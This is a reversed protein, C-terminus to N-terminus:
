SLLGKRKLALFRGLVTRFDSLSILKNHYLYRLSNICEEYSEPCYEYCYNCKLFTIYQKITEDESKYYLNILECGLPDKQVLLDIARKFNKVTRSGM